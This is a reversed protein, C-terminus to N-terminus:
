ELRHAAQLRHGVVEEVPVVDAEVAELALGEAIGHELVPPEAVREVVRDVALLQAVDGVVALGRRAGGDDRGVRPLVGVVVPLRGGVLEEGEVQGLRPLQQVVGPVRQDISHARVLAFRDLEAEPGGRVRRLRLGRDLEDRPPELLQTELDLERHEVGAGELGAHPVELAVRIHGVEVHVDPVPGAVAVGTLRQGGLRARLDAVGVLGAPGVRLVVLQVPLLRRSQIGLDAVAVDPLHLLDHVLLRRPHHDGVRLVELREVRLLPGAPRLHHLALTWGEERRAVDGGVDVQLRRRLLEVPPPVPTQTATAM